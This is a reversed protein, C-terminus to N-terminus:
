EGWVLVDANCTDRCYFTIKSGDIVTSLYTPISSTTTVFAARVNGFDTTLTNTDSLNTLKYLKFPAGIIKKSSVITAAAM